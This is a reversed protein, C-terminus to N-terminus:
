TEELESTISNYAILIVVYSHVYETTSSAPPVHQVQSERVDEWWEWDLVSDESYKANLILYM